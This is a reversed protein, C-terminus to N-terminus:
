DICGHYHRSYRTDKEHRAPLEVQVLQQTCTTNDRCGCPDEGLQAHHLVVAELTAEHQSREELTVVLLDLRTGTWLALGISGELDVHLLHTHTTHTHTHTHTYPTHTHITHTHTHPPPHVTYITHIHHTKARNRGVGYM